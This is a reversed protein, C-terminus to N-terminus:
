ARRVKLLQCTHTSITPEEWPAARLTAPDFLSEETCHLPPATDFQNPSIACSKNFPLHFFDPQMAKTRRNPYSLTLFSHSSLGQIVLQWWTRKCVERTILARPDLLHFNPHQSHTIYPGDKSDKGDKDSGGENGGNSIDKSGGTATATGSSSSGAAAPQSGAGSSSL